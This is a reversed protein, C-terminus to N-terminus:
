MNRRVVRYSSDFVTWQAGSWTEFIAVVFILRNTGARVLLGSSISRASASDTTSDYFAHFASVARRCAVTDTVVAVDNPTTADLGGLTRLTVFYLSTDTLIDNVRVLAETTLVSNGMSCADDRRRPKPAHDSNWLAASSVLGSVSLLLLIRSTM